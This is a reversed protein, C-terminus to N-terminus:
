RKVIFHGSVPKDFSEDYIIYWYDTEPVQHGNYMTDWYLDRGHYRILLKSFRDYIEIIADPYCEINDIEWVDNNGDGNPTVYKHPNIPPCGTKEVLVSFSAPLSACQSDFNKLTLLHEGPERWVVVVSDVTPTLEAGDLAWIKEFGDKSDTRFTTSMGEKVTLDYDKSFCVVSAGVIAIVPAILLYQKLRQSM